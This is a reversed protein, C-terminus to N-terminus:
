ILRLIWMRKYLYCRGQGYGEEILVLEVLVLVFGDCVVRANIM